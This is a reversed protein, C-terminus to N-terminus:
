TRRGIERFVLLPTIGYAKGPRGLLQRTLPELHALFADSIEDVKTTQIVEDPPVVRDPLADLIGVAVWAGPIEGGFKLVFDSSSGILGEERVIGWIQKDSTLVMQVTHPLVEVLDLFTDLGSPESPSAGRQKAARRREKRNGSNQDEGLRMHAEMSPKRWIDKLTSFNRIKLGGQVLVVDGVGAHEINRNLLKREELEDLLNLANIWRPDYSKESLKGHASDTGSSVGVEGKAVLASGSTRLQDGKSSRREAGEAELLEVLSGMNNFQASLTAIREFDVYIFDFVSDEDEDRAM